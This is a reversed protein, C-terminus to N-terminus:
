NLNLMSAFHCGCAHAQAQALVAGAPLGFDSQVMLCASFYPAVMATATCQFGCTQASAASVIAM